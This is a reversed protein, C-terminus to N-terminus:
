FTLFFLVKKYIMSKIRNRKKNEEDRQKLQKQQVEPLKQYIKKTQNKIEKSTMQRKHVFNDLNIEFYDKNFEKLKLNRNKITNKFNRELETLQETKYEAEQRRQQARLQIERQRKRSNSILNYKYIEFSEQLSLKKEETKKEFLIKSTLSGTTRVNTVSSPNFSM